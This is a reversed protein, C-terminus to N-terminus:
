ESRGEGNEVYVTGNTIDKISVKTENAVVARAATM